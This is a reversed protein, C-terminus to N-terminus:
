FFLWNPRPKLGEGRFSLLISLQISTIKQTKDRKLKPDKGFFLVLLYVKELISVNSSIEKMRFPGPCSSSKARPTGSSKIVM